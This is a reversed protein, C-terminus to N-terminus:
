ENNDPIEKGKFSLDWYKVEKIEGNIVTLFHGPLLLKIDRFISKPSLIYGLSFFDIVAEPTLEKSFASNYIFSKVESAFSIGKENIWYYLPKIGLRDRALFLKEKNSNWICFAFMGSLLNLCEEEKEEYLHLIVETDTSTKFKHGLSILEQRLEKFNYIEGNFAIIISEDENSIPQHGGELDIISLRRIGLGTYNHIFKGEDDAGRHRLTQTMRNLIINDVPSKDKFNIIGCIGCM